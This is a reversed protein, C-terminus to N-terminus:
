VGRIHRAARYVAVAVPVPVPVPVAVPVAVPVCASTCTLVVGVALRNTYCPTCRPDCHAPRRSFVQTDEMKWKNADDEEDSDPEPPPITTTLPVQVIARVSPTVIADLIAGRV